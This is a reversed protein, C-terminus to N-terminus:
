PPRQKVREMSINPLCIRRRAGPYKRSRGIEPRNWNPWWDSFDLLRLQGPADVIVNSPKLDRHVINHAHLASVGDVLQAFVRRLQQEDLSGHPRVYSFFDKGDILDMTFFWSAGDSELSHLGVLNPHNIDALTRFERKFRHLGEGDILPLFKLAVRNEHRVHVAEYVVGMGGRGLERELRYDGLFEASPRTWNLTPELNPLGRKEAIVISEVFAQRILSTDNPFQAVYDDPDPQEGRTKRKNIEIHFLNRFLTEKSDEGVKALFELLDPTNGEDWADSFRRACVTSDRSVISRVM